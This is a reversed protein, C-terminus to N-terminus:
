DHNIVGSGKCEKCSNRLNKLEFKYWWALLKEWLTPPVNFYGRGHCQWCDSTYIGSPNFM